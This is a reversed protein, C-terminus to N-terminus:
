RGPDPLRGTRVVVVSPLAKQVADAIESGIRRGLGPASNEFVQCPTPRREPTPRVPVSRDQKRCGALWILPLFLFSFIRIAQNSRRAV